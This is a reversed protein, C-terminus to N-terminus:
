QGMKTEGLIVTRILHSILTAEEAEIIGINIKELNELVPFRTSPHFSHILLLSLPFSYKGAVYM